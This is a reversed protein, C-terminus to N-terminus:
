LQMVALILLLEILLLEKVNKNRKEKSRGVKVKKAQFMQQCRKHDFWPSTHITVELAM